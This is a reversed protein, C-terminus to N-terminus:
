FFKGHNRAQMNRKSFAIRDRDMRAKSSVKAARRRIVNKISLIGKKDTVGYKESVNTASAFFNRNFYYNIKEEDKGPKIIRDEPRINLEDLIEQTYTINAYRFYATIIYIKSLKIIEGVTFGKYKGQDLRSLKTLTRLLIVSM